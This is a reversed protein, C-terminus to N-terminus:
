STLFWFAASHQGSPPSGSFSFVISNANQSANSIYELKLVNSWMLTIHDLNLISSSLCIQVAPSLLYTCLGLLVTVAQSPRLFKPFFKLALSLAPLPKHSNGPIVPHMHSMNIDGYFLCLLFPVGSIIAASNAIGESKFVNKKGNQKQQGFTEILNKKWNAKVSGSLSSKGKGIHFDWM